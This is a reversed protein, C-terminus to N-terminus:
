SFLAPDLDSGVAVAASALLCVAALRLLVWDGAADHPEPPTWGAEHAADQVGKAYHALQVTGVGGAGGLTLIDRVAAAHQDVTALRGPALTNIAARGPRAPRRARRDRAQRRVGAM